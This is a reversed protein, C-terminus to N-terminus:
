YGPAATLNFYTELTKIERNRLDAALEKGIFRLHWPEFQYGTIETQGKPYRIIFGFKWSNKALWKGADTKAFCVMIVCGQIPASVDLALGTQHESFGPRAARDEGKEEGLLSVYRDHTDKQEAYSRYSSDIVLTGAGAKIIAKELKAFAKDAAKTLGRKTLDAPEYELPILPRKKNVVVQVSGSSDVQYFLNPVRHLEEFGWGIGRAVLAFLGVVIALALLRRRIKTSKSLKAM